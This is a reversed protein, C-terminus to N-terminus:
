PKGSILAIAASIPISARKMSSATSNTPSSRFHSAVYIAFTTASVKRDLHSGEWFGRMRAELSQELFGARPEVLGSWDGSCTSTWGWRTTPPLHSEDSMTKPPEPGVGVKISDWGDTVAGNGDTVARTM